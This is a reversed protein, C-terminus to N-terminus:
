VQSVLFFLLDSLISLFVSVLNKGSTAPVKTLRVSISYLYKTLLELDDITNTCFLDLYNSAVDVHRYLRANYNPKINSKSYTCTKLSSRGTRKM